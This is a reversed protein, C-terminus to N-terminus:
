KKLEDNTATKDPSVIGLTADLNKSNEQPPANQTDSSQKRHKTYILQMNLVGFIVGLIGLTRGVVQHWVQQGRSVIWEEGFQHWIWRGIEDIHGSLYIVLGFFIIGRINGVYTGKDFIQGPGCGGNSFAYKNVRLFFSLISSDRISKM